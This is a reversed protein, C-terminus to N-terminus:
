TRQFVGVNRLNHNVPLIISPPRGGCGPPRPGVTRRFARVPFRSFRRELENGFGSEEIELYKVIIGCILEPTLKEFRQEM